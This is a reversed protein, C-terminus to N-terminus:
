RSLPSCSQLGDRQPITPNFLIDGRTQPRPLGLPAADLPKVWLLSSNLLGLRTQLGRLRKTNSISCNILESPLDSATPLMGPSSSCLLVVLKEMLVAPHTLYAFEVVLYGRYRAIIRARESQVEGQFRSLHSLGRVFDM